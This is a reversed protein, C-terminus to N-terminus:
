LKALLNKAAIKLAGIKGADAMSGTNDLVLAVRLRSSTGWMATSSGTIQITKFGVVSLFTTKISAAGTAQITSNGQSDTGTIKHSQVEPRNFQANFYKAGQTQMQASTQSGANKALMLATADLAVQMAAKVSNARSYDVASGVAGMIPVLLLAFTIAMNA